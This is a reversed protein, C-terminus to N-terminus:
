SFDVQSKVFSNMDKDITSYIWAHPYCDHHLKFPFFHTRAPNAERMRTGSDSGMDEM